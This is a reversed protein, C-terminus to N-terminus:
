AYWKELEEFAEVTKSCGLLRLLEMMLEDAAIHAVETLLAPPMDKAAEEQIKSAYLADIKEIDIEM